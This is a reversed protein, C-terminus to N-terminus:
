IILYGALLILATSFLIVLKAGRQGGELTEGIGLDMMLHKTGAVLHYALASVLGWTIFKGIPSAMMAQLDAFGSESALSVDLGYLAFGIGVFLVIGSIRHTISTLAPLPWGFVLLDSIGVNIPRSDKKV